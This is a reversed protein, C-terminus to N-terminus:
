KKLHISAGCCSSQFLGPNKVARARNTKYQGAIGGCADCILTYKYSEVEYDQVDSQANESAGIEKALAKFVKDHGHNVGTTETIYWHAWEHRITRIVDEDAGNEIYKKNFEIATSKCFTPYQMLKVRGLTTRLRGNLSVPVNLEVEYEACLRELEVMVQELKMQNGEKM